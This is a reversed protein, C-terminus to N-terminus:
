AADSPPDDTTYCALACEHTLAQVPRARHTITEGAEALQIMQRARLARLRGLEHEMNSIIRDMEEHASM